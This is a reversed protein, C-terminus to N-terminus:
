HVNLLLDRHKLFTERTLLMDIFDNKDNTIKFGKDLYIGLAAKNEMHVDLLISDLKLEFFAYELILTTAQRAIGKGWFSEEGIFIHYVASSDEINTLQVNGIYRNDEVLCIAFRKENARSSVEAIWNREIEATVYQNIPHKTYTWIKPNNRWKYAVEADELALPRLYVSYNM